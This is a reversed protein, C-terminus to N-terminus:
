EENSLQELGVKAVLLDKTLQISVDGEIGVNM